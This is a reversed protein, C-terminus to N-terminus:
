KRCVCVQRPSGSTFPQRPFEGYRAELHFGACELLLLLEQPFIMRLRYDIVHFDPRGPSSFYWHINRAQNQADYEATEEISIEGHQPHRVKFLAQRQQPEHELTKVDPNAIDLVLRGDTGLHRHICSLCQKLEEVTILHLLSNGPILVVSFEGPLDFRTMDGQVFEVPVSAASAKVRAAELMSSSWDLGVVEIGKQAIPVTLRGSGCGLELVRGGGREAEELYFRESALIRQRRADDLFAAAGSSAGPFLSDYFEPDSYLPCEDM